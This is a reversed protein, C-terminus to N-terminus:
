ALAWAWTVEGVSSDLRLEGIGADEVDPIEVRHDQGRLAPAEESLGPMDAHLDRLPADGFRAAM